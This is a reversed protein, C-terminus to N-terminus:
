RRLESGLGRREADALIAAGFILDALGVGLHAVLVRGRPRPWHTPGALVQGLTAAPDPFDRFYAGGARTAEFQGREDTLFLDATRALGAPAYTDYDVAVVLANAALSGLPLLGRAPGFAACTLVVDAGDVAEAASTVARARAIGDTGHAIEVLAGARAPDTDFVALDLGALLAGLVPVHSRGQVGAGILAARPGRGETPPAFLRIAVGSVAATRQATIPGADLIAIPEGTTPDNLLLLAQIAPAGSRVNDPFGTVWKIGLLDATGEPADGRLFAPMAHGFSAPPRPHVAIKAPLEGAPAEGPAGLALARLTREALTLREDLAPMSAEVDIGTLYRIPGQGPTMTGDGGDYSRTM